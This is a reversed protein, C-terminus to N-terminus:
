PGTAHITTTIFAGTPPAGWAPTNFKLTFWDNAALAVNLNTASFANAAVGGVPCNVGTLIQTTTTNNVRIDVTATQGGVAAGVCYFEFYIAKLTLAVLTKGYVSTNTTPVATGPNGTLSGVNLTLYYSTSNAPNWTAAAAGAVYQWWEQYFAPPNSSSVPVQQANLYGSAGCVLLLLLAATLKISRM